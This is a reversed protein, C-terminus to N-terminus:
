LSHYRHSSAEPNFQLTQEIRGVRPSEYDPRKRKLLRNDVVRKQPYQDVSAVKEYEALPKPEPYYRVPHRPPNRLEADRLRATLHQIQIKLHGSQRKYKDLSELKITMFLRATQEFKVHNRVQAELKQTQAELVSYDDEMRVINASVTRIFYELLNVILIGYDMHSTVPQSFM